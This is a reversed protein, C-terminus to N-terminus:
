IVQLNRSSLLGKEQGFWQKKGLFDWYFIHCCKGLMVCFGLQTKTVLCTM